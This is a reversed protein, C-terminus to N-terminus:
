FIIDEVKNAQDLLNDKKFQNAYERCYKLVIEDSGVNNFYDSLAEFACSQLLNERPVEIELEIPNIHDHSWYGRKTLSLVTISMDFYDVYLGKDIKKLFKNWEDKSTSIMGYEGSPLHKVPIGKEFYDPYPIYVFCHEFRNKDFIDIEKEKPVENSYFDIIDGNQNFGIRSVADGDYEVLDPEDDNLINYNIRLSSKVLPLTEDHIVLQKDVEFNEKESKAKNQAYTLAIDCKSFFGYLCADKDLVVYVYDNNNNDEFLQKALDEYELRQKIQTKLRKDDTSEMLDKLTKLKDKHLLTSNYILTALEFDSFTHGIEKLYMRVQSSPIVMELIKTNDM